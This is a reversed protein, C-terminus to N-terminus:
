ERLFGFTAEKCHVTRFGQKRVDAFLRKMGQDGLSDRHVEIIIKRVSSPLLAFDIHKEAGEIDIVLATIDFDSKALLTAFTMSPVAVNGATHSADALHHEWFDGDVNLFVEGDSPGVACNWVLPTVNNLRYNQELVAITAPNAEVTIYKTIGLKLQCFLGLFGIGGGLELVTDSSTLMSRCIDKEADEYGVNLIRNRLRPALTSLDLEIGELKTREIRPLVFKFYCNLRFEQIWRTLADANFLVSNM